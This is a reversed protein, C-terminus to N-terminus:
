IEKEFKDKEAGCIPCTWGAPLAEFSTGPAIKGEPDGAQPDYVYGCLTCTYRAAKVAPRPKEEQYTPASKPARGGKASRYYAYTMPEAAPTLVDCDVVQGLFITHTGCDMSNLVEAEIFAVAHDTVIPVGTKGAMTGIGAFKDIDRGCKFGFLGILNMPCAEQLISVAFKGSALIREHTYNEKNISVAVTSPESTVQIVANAIQGNFRGEKGSTVLYLGYSLKHFAAKNM